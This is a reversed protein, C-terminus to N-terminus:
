DLREAQVPSGRKSFPGSLALMLKPNGVKKSRNNDDPKSKIGDKTDVIKNAIIM